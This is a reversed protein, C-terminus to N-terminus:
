FDSGGARDAWEDLINRRRERKKNWDPSMSNDIKGVSLGSTIDQQFDQDGFGGFSSPLQNPNSHVGKRGLGTEMDNQFSSGGAGSYGQPTTSTSDTKGLGREMDNQFSSGGLNRYGTNKKKGFM